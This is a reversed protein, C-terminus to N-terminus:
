KVPYTRWSSNTDYTRIIVEIRIKKKKCLDVDARKTIVHSLYMRRQMWIDGDRVAPQLIHKKVM